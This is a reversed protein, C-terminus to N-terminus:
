PVRAPPEPTLSMGSVNGASRVPPSRVPQGDLRGVDVVQFGGVALLDVDRGGGDIKSTGPSQGVPWTPHHSVTM